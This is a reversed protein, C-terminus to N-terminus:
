RKIQSQLSKYKGVLGALAEEWGVIEKVSYDFGNNLLMNVANVVQIENKPDAFLVNKSSSLHTWSQTTTLVKCGCALAELDVLPSVEANSLTLLVKTKRMIELVEEHTRVGLYEVNPSERLLKQFQKFYAKQYKNKSGIIKLTAYSFHKNVINITSIINKRSEIRGVILLENDKDRFERDTILRQDVANIVVMSEIKMRHFTNQFYEQESTSLFTFFDFIELTNSISHTLKPLPQKSLVARIYTKIKNTVNPKYGPHLIPSLIKYASINTTIYKSYDLLREVNFAHIIDWNNSSLQKPSLEHAYQVSLGDIEDELVKKYYQSQILDGGSKVGADNRVIFLVNM